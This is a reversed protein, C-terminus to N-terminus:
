AEARVMAVRLPRKFVVLPTTPVMAVEVKFM